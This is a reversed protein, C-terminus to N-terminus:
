YKATDQPFIGQLSCIFFNRLMRALTENVRAEKVKKTAGACAAGTVISEPL